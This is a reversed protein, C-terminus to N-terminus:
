DDWEDRSRRVDAVPDGHARGVRGFLEMVSKLSPAEGDPEVTVRVTGGDELGRRLDEPLQNVPYHEVVIKEHEGM